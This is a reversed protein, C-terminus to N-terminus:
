FPPPFYLLVSEREEALLVEPRRPVSGPKKLLGRQEMFTKLKPDLSM